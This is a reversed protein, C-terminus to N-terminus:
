GTPAHHTVAPQHHLARQTKYYARIDDETVYGKKDRDIADWHRVLSKYGTKAQDLTLHGDHTVNAQEFREHLTLHTPTTDAAQAHAALTFMAAALLPLLIRM